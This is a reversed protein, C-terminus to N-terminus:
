KCSASILIIKDKFVDTYNFLGNKFALRSTWYDATFNSDSIKIEYEIETSNFYNGAGFVVKDKLADFNFLFNKSVTIPQGNSVMGAFTTECSYGRAYSPNCILCFFSFYLFSKASM